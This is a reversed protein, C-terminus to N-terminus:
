ISTDSPIELDEETFTEDTVVSAHTNLIRLELLINELLKRVENDVVRQGEKVFTSPGSGPNATPM